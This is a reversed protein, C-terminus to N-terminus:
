DAARGDHAGDLLLNLRELAAITSGVVARSGDIADAGRALTTILRQKSVGSEALDIAVSALGSLRVIGPDGDLKRYFVFEEGASRTTRRFDPAYSFTAKTATPNARIWATGEGAPGVAAAPMSVTRLANKLREWRVREALPGDDPGRRVLPELFDLFDAISGRYRGGRSGRADNKAAIWSAWESLLAMPDAGDNVVALMLDRLANVIPFFEESARLLGLDLDPYAAPWYYRSFIGPYTEMLKGNATHIEQGLPFDVYYPDFVLSSKVKEYDASGRYPNYGFLHVLSDPLSLYRFCEHLTGALSQATEGPLGSIFGVTVGIGAEVTAGIIRRAQDLDLNKAIAAQMRSTGTEVGFYINRCGARAMWDIQEQDLTDTRSSCTWTVELGSDVLSRCFDIVWLRRTTFLDHTFNFDTRGTVSILQKLEKIIRAPSKIRHKRQWYPATLCFSCRFPCGRGIEVFIGDGEDIGVLSYDPVPLTDLDAVLPLQHTATTRGGRRLVLNGSDPERDSDLCDLLQGFAQEGEGTVVYDIYPFRDVTDWAVPTAHPGGLVVRTGPAKKRVNECIRLVHHYSDAETMFGLVDPAGEVLLEAAEEYFGPAMPLRGSNIAKNVDAIAFEALDSAAAALSLLGTPVFTQALQPGGGLPLVGEQISGHNLHPSTALTVRM